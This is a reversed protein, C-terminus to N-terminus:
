LDRWRASSVLPGHKIAQWEKIRRKFFTQGESGCTWDSKLEHCDRERETHNKTNIATYPRNEWKCQNSPKIQHSQRECDSRSCQSRERAAPVHSPSWGWCATSGPWSRRRSCLSTRPRAVCWRVPWIGPPANENTLLVCVYVSSTAPFVRLRQRVNKVFM